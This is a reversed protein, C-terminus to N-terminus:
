FAPRDRRLDRTRTGDAGGSPGSFDPLQSGGKPTAKKKKPLTASFTAIQTELQGAIREGTQARTESLGARGMILLRKPPIGDKNRKGVILERYHTLEAFCSWDEEVACVARHFAKHWFPMLM